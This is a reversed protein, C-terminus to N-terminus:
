APRLTGPRLPLRRMPKGPPPRRDDVSEATPRHRGATAARGLHYTHVGCALCERRGTATTLYPMPCSTGEGWVQHHTAQVSPPPRPAGPPSFRKTVGGRAQHMIPRHGEVCALGRRHEAPLGVVLLLGGRAEVPDVVDGRLHASLHGPLQAVGGLLDLGEPGVRALLLHRADRERAKRERGLRGGRPVGARAAVRDHLEHPVGGRRVAGRGQEQAEGVPDRGRRGVLRAQEDQLGDLLGRPQRLPVRGGSASSSTTVMSSCAGSPFTSKASRRARIARASASSASSRPAQRGDYAQRTVVV